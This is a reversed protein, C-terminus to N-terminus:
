PVVWRRSLSLSVKFCNLFSKRCNKPYCSPPSFVLIVERTPQELCCYDKPYYMLRVEKPPFNFEHESKVFMIVGWLYLCHLEEVGCQTLLPIKFCAFMVYHHRNEQFHDCILKNQRFYVVMLLIIISCICFGAEPDKIIM